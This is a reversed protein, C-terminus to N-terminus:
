LYIQYQIPLGLLKKMRVKEKELQTKHSVGEIRFRPHYKNPIYLTNPDISYM